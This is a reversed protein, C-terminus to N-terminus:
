QPDHRGVGGAVRGDEMALMKGLLSIGHLVVAKWTPGGKGRGRPSSASKLRRTTRESEAREDRRANEADRNKKKFFFSKQMVEGHPFGWNFVIQCSNLRIVKIRILM